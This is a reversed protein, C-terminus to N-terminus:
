LDDTTLGNFEAPSHISFSEDGTLLELRDTPEALKHDWDDPNLIQGVNLVRSDDSFIVNCDRHYPVEPCGNKSFFAHRYGFGGEGKQRKGQAGFYRFGAVQDSYRDLDQGKADIYSLFVVAHGSGSTRNINVFGGPELDQFKLKEGLGFKALADATGYSGLKADVWIHAKIADKDLSNWSRFPLFDYLAHSGTDESYIGFATVIVELVGAVCMTLGGKTPKITGYKYYHLPHTIQAGINYGLLGYNKSLYNVSKLVYANFFHTPAARSEAVVRVRYSITGELKNGDKAFPVFEIKQEGPVKFAHRFRFYSDKAIYEATGLAEGNSSVKVTRVEKPAVIRILTPVNETILLDDALNEVRLLTPSQEAKVREGQLSFLLFLISVIIHKMGISRNFKLM